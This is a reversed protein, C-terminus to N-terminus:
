RVVIPPFLEIKQRTLEPPQILMALIRPLPLNTSWPDMMASLDFSEADKVADPQQPAINNMDAGQATQTPTLENKAVPCDTTCITNPGNSAGHEIQYGQSALAGPALYEPHAFDSPPQSSGVKMQM